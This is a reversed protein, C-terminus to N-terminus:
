RRWTFGDGHGCELWADQMFKNLYQLGGTNPAKNFDGMLVVRGEMTPDLSTLFQILQLIEIGIDWTAIHTTVFWMEPYRLSLISPIVKIALAGQCYDFLQQVSCNHSTNSRPDYFHFIKTELIPIASFLAVGFLGGEWLRFPAFAGHMKLHEKMIEFEDVPTRLTNRDVEQLAVIDPAATKIVEAQELLDFDMTTNRGYQINYTM